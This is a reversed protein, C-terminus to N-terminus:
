KEGRARQLEEQYIDRIIRGPFAGEFWGDMGSVLNEPMRYSMAEQNMAKEINWAKGQWWTRGWERSLFEAAQVASSFSELLQGHQDYMRVCWLHPSSDRDIMPICLDYHAIKPPLGNLGGADVVEQTMLHLRKGIDDAKKLDVMWAETARDLFARCFGDPQKTHVSTFIRIAGSGPVEKRAAYQSRPETGPDPIVTAAESTPTALKVVNNPAPGETPRNDGVPQAAPEAPKVKNKAGPPRGRGRKVPTERFEGNIPIAADTIVPRSGQPEPAADDHPM